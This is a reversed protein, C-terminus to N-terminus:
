RASIVAGNPGLLCRGSTVVLNPAILTGTCSLTWDYGAAQVKGVAQWRTDSTEVPKRDDAGIIGPFALDTAAAPRAAVLLQCLLLLLASKVSPRNSTQLVKW